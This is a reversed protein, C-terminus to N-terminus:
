LARNQDQGSCGVVSEPQRQRGFLTVKFNYLQRAGAAEDRGPNVHTPRRFNKFPPVFTHDHSRCASSSTLALRQRSNYDHSYPTVTGGTM